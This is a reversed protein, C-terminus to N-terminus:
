YGSCNALRVVRSLQDIILKCPGRAGWPRICENYTHSGPMSASMKTVETDRFHGHPMLKRLAEVLSEKNDVRWVLALSRLDYMRVMGAFDIRRNVKFRENQDDFVDADNDCILESVEDATFNQVAGNTFTVQCAKPL